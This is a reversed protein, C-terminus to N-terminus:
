DESISQLQIELSSLYSRNNITDPSLRGVNIACKVLDKAKIDGCNVSNIFTDYGPIGQERLYGQYALSVLNFPKVNRTVQNRSEQSSVVEEAFVPTAGTTLFLTGLSAILFRKM